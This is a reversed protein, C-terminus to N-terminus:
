VEATISMAVEHLPFHATDMIKEGGGGGGRISFGPDAGLFGSLAQFYVTQSQINCSFASKVKKKKPPPPPALTYLRVM